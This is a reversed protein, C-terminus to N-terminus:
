RELPPACPVRDLRLQRPAPSALADSIGPIAIWFLKKTVGVDNQLYEREAVVVSVVAVVAVIVVQM